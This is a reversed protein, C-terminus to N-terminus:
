CGSFLASLDFSSRALEHCHSYETPLVLAVFGLIKSKSGPEFALSGLAAGHEYLRSCWCNMGANLMNSRFQDAGAGPYTGVPYISTFSSTKAACAVPCDAGGLSPYAAALATSCVPCTGVVSYGVIRKAVYTGGEKSFADLANVDAADVPGTFVDGRGPSYSQLLPTQAISSWWSGNLAPSQLWGVVGLPM